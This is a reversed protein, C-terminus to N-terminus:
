GASGRSPATPEWTAPGRAVPTRGSSRAQRRGRRRRRYHNAWWGALFFGAGLMLVLGVGSVVTSRVTFRTQEFVIQGDPSTVSVSLPFTGSTRAEVSFRATTNRPPLTLVRDAGEPFFLKESQFRVRVRVPQNTANQFSLPIAARRATITVTSNEPGRIAAVFTHITDEVVGLEREARRRGSAGTWVSSLSVLIARNGREIRPDDPAVLSGFSALRGTEARVDHATVPLPAARLSQTQRVLTQRRSRSSPEPPVSDLLTGVGEVKVLPSARLAEIVTAVATQTQADVNWANPMQVVVGRERGPQEFAVVALGALFRQARLAPSSGDADLLSALGPDTAVASMPQGDTLLEFPRAPTFQSTVPTLSSPDVVVRDVGSERLQNLGRSDIPDVSVMRADARVGLVSTLTEAGAALQSGVESGLGGAVLSPVDVPVYTSALFAHVSDRLEAYTAALDRNDSAFASWSELTEPGPVLTIPMGAAAQVLSAIRGLRGAPGLEAVVAPDPTGNPLYAPNAVVPWIWSLALPEAIVSEGPQTAPVAVVYTVFGDVRDHTRLDYLEVEVPYVNASSPTHVLGQLTYVDGAAPLASVPAANFKARGALGTRGITHQFATRSSLGTHLATEVGLRSVDGDIRVRLPVDSGFTSWAPQQVLTIHAVPTQPAASTTTDNVAGAPAVGLSLLTAVSLVAAVLAPRM